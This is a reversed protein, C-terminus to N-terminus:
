WAKSLDTGGRLYEASVTVVTKDSPSGSSYLSKYGPPQFFSKASIGPAFFIDENRSVTATLYGNLKLLAAVNRYAEMSTAPVCVCAISREEVLYESETM